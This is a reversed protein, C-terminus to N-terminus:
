LYFRWGERSPAKVNCETETPDGSDMVANPIRETRYRRLSVAVRIQATSGVRTYRSVFLDLGEHVYRRPRRSSFAGHALSVSKYTPLSSKPFM